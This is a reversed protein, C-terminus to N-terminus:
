ERYPGYQTFAGDLMATPDGQWTFTGDVDSRRRRGTVSLLFDAPAGTLALPTTGAIPLWMRDGISITLALDLREAVREQLLPAYRECGTATVSALPAEIADITEAIDHSHVALDATLGLATMPTETMLEAIGAANSAWEDCIEGISMDRRTEVQRATKEDSGLPPKMGALLDAVLGAVHAVVDAVSWLPCTPVTTALQDLPLDRVQSIMHDRADGYISIAAVAAESTSETM